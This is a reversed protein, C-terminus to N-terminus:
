NLVSLLFVTMPDELEPLRGCSGESVYRFFLEHCGGILALYTTEPLPVFETVDGAHHAIHAHRVAIALATFYANRQALGRPGAQPLELTWARTFEPESASTRLYERVSRRIRAELDGPQLTAEILRPLLEARGIEVAALFCAEKDAFLRYFAQRSVRARRVIDAITTAAFGGEAIAAIAARVIRRRHADRVQGDALRGRGRPLGPSDRAFSGALTGM